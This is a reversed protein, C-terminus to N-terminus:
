EAKAPKPDEDPIAVGHADFQAIFSPWDYKIGAAELAAKIKKEQRALKLAFQKKPLQEHNIKKPKTRANTFLKPPVEAAPLYKAELKKEFMLYNNFSKAVIKATEPSDFEAWGYHKSNGTKSSRALQVNKVTGFEGFSKKMQKEEFGDPLHAFYVVCSTEGEAM